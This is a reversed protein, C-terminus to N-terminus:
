RLTSILGFVIGHVEAAGTVLSLETPIAVGANFFAFLPMILYAVWTHLNNEFRNLPRQSIRIVHELKKISKDSVQFSGDGLGARLKDNLEQIKVKRDMPITMAMLVGAITAHIGSQLMFYWCLIGICAYIPGRRITATRGYVYSVIVMFFSLGLMGLRLEESYFVAIVIIAGLDDVIALATLFVKMALPIRSGLLSLVGIAFAIDTAMPIGWGHQIDPHNRAFFAYILAPVVMGGVAAYGSLAAKKPSSLEGILVERKIELGVVFFFVVMLADNVWKELYLNLHFSGISLGVDMHKLHFYWDHLGTNACIMALVASVLLLIGGAKQGTLFHQFPTRKPILAEIM